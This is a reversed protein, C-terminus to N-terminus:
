DAEERRPGPDIGSGKDQKKYGLAIRETIPLKRWSEDDGQTTTKGDKRVVPITLIPKGKADVKIGFAQPNVEKYEALKELNNLLDEETLEEDEEPYKFRKKLDKPIIKDADEWRTKADKIFEDAISKLRENSQKYKELLKANHSDGSDLASKVDNYLGEFKKSSAKYSKLDEMKEIHSAENVAIQGDKVTSDADVLVYAEFKGTVLKTVDAPIEIGQKVLFDLVEQAKKEAM